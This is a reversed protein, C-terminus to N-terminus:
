STEVLPEYLSVSVKRGLANAMKELTDLKPIKLGREYKSLDSKGIGTFDAMINLSVGKDERIARLEKAMSVITKNM